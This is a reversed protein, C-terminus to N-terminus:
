VSRRVAARSHRRTPASENSKGVAVSCGVNDSTAASGIPKFVWSPLNVVKRLRSSMHATATGNPM